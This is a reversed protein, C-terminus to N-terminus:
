DHILASRVLRSSDRQEYARELWAMAQEKEGLGAYVIAFEYSPVYQRTDM